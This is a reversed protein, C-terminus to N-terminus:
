EKALEPIKIKTGYPVNDPNKIVGKNHKVIYPWMAKTGYYRLSIRTLTEGAKVTHNTKTGVIKYNVDDSYTTPSTAKPTTPSTTKATTSPAAKSMTSPATKPTSKNVKEASVEEKQKKKSVPVAVEASRTKKNVVTDPLVEKVAAQVSDKQGVSDAYMIEPQVEQEAALLTNSEDETSQSLLFDPYYLSVLIGGCLLLVVVIAGILYSLVSKEKPAPNNDEKLEANFASAAKEEEVANLVVDQSDTVHAEEMRAAHERQAPADSEAGGESEASVEPEVPGEQKAAGEEPSDAISVATEVAADQSIVNENVSCETTIDETSVTETAVTETTVDATTIDASAIHEAVAIDVAPNDAAVDEAVVEETAMDEAAVDDLVADEEEGEMEVPTDELVTGANLVVTEFHAFPKNITDRLSTDPSFSVKTHGKIQFREGTNINVSERSDVDILKFTGLGKIKVNKDKELAQEILLFFEKVFVEADKKSIGQKAALLDILDQITLRENM